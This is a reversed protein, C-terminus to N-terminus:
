FVEPCWPAVESAFLRDAVLMADPRGTILEARALQSATATGLFLTALTTAAFALQPTDTTPTCHGRGDEVVLHYRDRGVIFKLSGDSAYTRAALAAAVNEIRIWLGDARRSKIRRM